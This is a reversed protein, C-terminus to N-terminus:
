HWFLSAALDLALAAQGLISCLGNHGIVRRAVTELAGEDVKDYGM